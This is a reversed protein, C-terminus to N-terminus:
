ATTTVPWRPDLIATRAAWALASQQGISLGLRNWHFIIHLALVRRLGRDLSGSHVAEALALGTGRFAEAWAAVPALPGGYALAPGDASTDALLLVRLHEAMERLREKPIDGVASRQEEGIVRDWVDGQEYWELGAARMMIVCLMVSLERRGLAVDDRRALAVIERSDAVFLRHAASMGARGGFAASEPEYIGPWWRRLHGGEVLHDLAVGLDTRVGIGPKIRLRLRWCPHKRTFWWASIAGSGEAGRLLPELHNVATQEANAWETFEIRVQWWDTVAAQEALAAHGAQRFVEVADALNTPEVGSRHATGVVDRGALVDLVARDIPGLAPPRAAETLRDASM